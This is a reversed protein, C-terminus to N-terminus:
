CEGLSTCKEQAFIFVVFVSRSPMDARPFFFDRTFFGKHIYRHASVQFDVLDKEGMFSCIQAGVVKEFTFERVCVCVCVCVEVTLGEGVEGAELVGSGGAVHLGPRRPTSGGAELALNVCARRAPVLGPPGTARHSAARVGM